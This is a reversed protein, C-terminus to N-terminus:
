RPDGNTPPPYWSTRPVLEQDYAFATAASRSTVDIKTFINSLHRAVTKESLFLKVAIQRNTKGSAVLRLVECERKTLGAPLDAPCNTFGSLSHLDSNAGLQEFLAGAAEFSASAGDLDGAERCAAGQLMRATAVEHPAGLEQWQEAARRLTACASRDGSALQVRGRTSLAAATLAPSAFDVAISELEELATVAGAIDDAAIAIQAKAPLLRARGLRNWTIDGLARGIIAVAADTNGQALRLVALGPQPQGSLQEAKRFADEAGQLNGVRRRIEGIEAYGAAASGVNLTALEACARIAQQEAEDWKGRIRLSSALHVRCLGPFVAMPHRQAWRTTAESWEASRRLDGLAECASILSCYVKGTSYPRLRGEVAFLMAEDLAAMGQAWQGEDILIRGLTQLAEAELDAERLHRGLLVVERAADESFRLDGSGHAMEAERLLLAGYAPSEHDNELAHRGRRLWAGAIAPQAKFCYHEYLWVACQGARQREGAEDFLRYAGERAEICEDLRGLWWAADALVDLREADRTSGQTGAEVAADYAAEWECRSLASRAAELPDRDSM